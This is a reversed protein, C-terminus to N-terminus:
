YRYGKKDLMAEIERMRLFTSHRKNKISNELEDEGSDKLSKLQGSYKSLKDELDYYEERLQEMEEDENPKEIGIAERLARSIRDREEIADDREKQLTKIDIDIQKKKIANSKDVTESFTKNPIKRKEQQLDYLRSIADRVKQDATEFDKQLAKYQKKDKAGSSGEAEPCGPKHKYQNCGREAEVLDADTPIRYPNAALLIEADLDYTETTNM